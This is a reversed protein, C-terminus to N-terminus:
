LDFHAVSFSSRDAFRVDIRPKKMSVKQVHVQSKGRPKPSARFLKSYRKNDM